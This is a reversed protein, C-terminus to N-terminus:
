HLEKMVEAYAESRLVVDLSEEDEEEVEVAQEGASAGESHWVLANRARAMEVAKDYLEREGGEEQTGRKFRLVAM